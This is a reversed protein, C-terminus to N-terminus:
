LEIAKSNETDDTWPDTVFFSEIPEMSSMKMSGSTHKKLFDQGDYDYGGSFDVIVNYTGSYPTRATTWATTTALPYYVKAWTNAECGIYKPTTGGAGNDELTWLRCEVEMYAKKNGAVDADAFSTEDTISFITPTQPMVFLMSDTTHLLANKATLEREEPLLFTYNDLDDMLEWSGDKETTTSFTFKGTSKINHLTISRVRVNLDEKSVKGQFRLYSFLHKFKFLLTGGTGEKTKNLLSSIMFDTQKANTTPMTHVFSKEDVTMTLSKVDDRVFGPKMAYFDLANKGPFTITRSSKWAGSEQKTQIANNVLPKGNSCLFSYIAYETFQKATEYKGRTFGEDDDAVLFIIPENDDLMGVDSDTASCSSVTAQLMCAASITVMTMKFKSKTFM